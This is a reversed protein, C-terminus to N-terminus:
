GYDIGRFSTFWIAVFFFAVLFAALFFFYTSGLTRSGAV